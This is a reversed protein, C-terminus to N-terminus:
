YLRYVKKRVFGLVFEWGRCVGDVEREVLDNGNCGKIVMREERVERVEEGVERDRRVTNGDHREQLEQHARHHVGCPVGTRVSSVGLRGVLFIVICLLVLYRRNFDLLYFVAASV